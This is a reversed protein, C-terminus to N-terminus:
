KKEGNINETNNTCTPDDEKCDEARQSFMSQIQVYSDTVNRRGVPAIALMHFNNFNYVEPALTITASFSLVLEGNLRGNRSDPSIIIGDDGEPVLLCSDNSETWKPASSGNSISGSYTICASKFHEVGSIEGELSMYPKGEVKDKKYWDDYQPTRWIRVVKKGKYEETTYDTTKNKTKDDSEDDSPNCGEEEITWFAYFGKSSDRFTAGDDGSEIICYAPITKGNKDVYNGYDYRMFKMSKKFSDLVNYDIFPEKGANAQADFTFTPKESELNINLESITVTDAGTPILAALIGFTRSLVKKDNTIAKLSSLQGKITLFEDLDSYSNLKESLSNLTDKKGDLAAQQGGMILGFITAVCISAVSVIICIALILNRLKIAKIMERKIDPVLNIERAM